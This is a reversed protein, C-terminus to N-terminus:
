LRHVNRWEVPIASTLTMSCSPVTLGTAKHVARALTYLFLSPFSIHDSQNRGRKFGKTKCVM